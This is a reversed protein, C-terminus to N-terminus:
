GRCRDLSSPLIDGDSRETKGGAEAEGWGGGAEGEEGGVTCFGALLGQVPRGEAGGAEM